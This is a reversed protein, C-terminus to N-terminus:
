GEPTVVREGWRETHRASGLSTGRRVCVSVGPVRGELARGPPRAGPLLNGESPAATRAWTM